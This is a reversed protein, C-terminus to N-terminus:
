SGEEGQLPSNGGPPRGSGSADGGQSRVGGMGGPGGADSGIAGAGSNPSSVDSESRGASMDGSGTGIGSTGTGSDEGGGLRDALDDGQGEGQSDVAAGQGAPSDPGTIDGRDNYTGSGLAGNSGPGPHNQNTM